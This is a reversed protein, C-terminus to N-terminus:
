RWASTHPICHFQSKLYQEGILSKAMSFLIEANRSPDAFSQSMGAMSESVVMGSNEMVETYKCLFLKAGSPLAKISEVDDTNFNLKTNEKLWELGSEIYLTNGQTINIPLGLEELKM